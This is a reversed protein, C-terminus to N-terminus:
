LGKMARDYLAIYDIVPPVSPDVPLQMHKTIQVVNFTPLARANDLVVNTKVSGDALFTCQTALNPKFQSACRVWATPTLQLCENMDLVHVSDFGRQMIPPCTPACTISSNNVFYIAEDGVIPLHTTLHFPTHTSTKCFGMIAKAVNASETSDKTLIIHHTQPNCFAM